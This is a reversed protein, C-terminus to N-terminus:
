IIQLLALKLEAELKARVHSVVNEALSSKHAELNSPKDRAVQLLCSLQRLVEVRKGELRM